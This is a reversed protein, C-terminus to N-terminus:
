RGCGEPGAALAPFRRDEIQEEWIVLPKNRRRGPITGAIQVGMKGIHELQM